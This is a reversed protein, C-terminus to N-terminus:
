ARADRVSGLFLAAGTAFLIYSSQYGEVHFVMLGIIAWIVPSLTIVAGIRIPRQSKRM